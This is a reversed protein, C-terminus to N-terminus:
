LREGCGARRAVDGSRLIGFDRPCRFFGGEIGGKFLPPPLTHRAGGGGQYLPFSIGERKPGNSLSLAPLSPSPPLNEGGGESFWETGSQPVDGRVWEVPEPYVGPLWGGKIFPTEPPNEGKNVTLQENVMSAFEGRTVIKEPELEGKEGPELIGTEVARALYGNAWHHPNFFKWFIRDKSVPEERGGDRVNVCRVGSCFAVERGVGFGEAFIEPFRVFLNKQAESFPAIAVLMEPVARTPFDFSEWSEDKNEYFPVGDAFRAGTPSANIRGEGLRHIESVLENLKPSVDRMKKSLEDRTTRHDFFNTEVGFTRGVALLADIDDSSIEDPRNDSAKELIEAIRRDAWIKPLFQALPAFSIKEGVPKRGTFFISETDVGGRLMQPLVEVSGDLKERVTDQSVVGHWFELKKLFEEKELLSAAGYFIKQTFGGSMEALSTLPSDKDEGFRFLVLPVSIDPFTDLADGKEDTFFFIAQDPGQPFFTPANGLEKFNAKGVPKVSPLFQFFKKQFEFTNDQFNGDEFWEINEGLFGVKVEAEGGLHELLFRLWEGTRKWAEGSMSGSKDLLFVAQRVRNKPISEPFFAEYVHGQYPFELRPSPVHSWLFFINEPLFNKRTFLRVRQKDNVVESGSQANSLFHYIKSDEKLSLSLEFFPVPTARKLFIESFFFDTIFDANTEFSIKTQIIERPAIPFSASFLKPWTEDGLRFLSADNGEKASDFIKDLRERGEIIRFDRGESEVFFSINKAGAGLPFLLELSANESFTNEWKQLIQTTIATGQVDIQVREELLRPVDEAAFVSLPVLITMALLMM